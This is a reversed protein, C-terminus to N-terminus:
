LFYEPVKLVDQYLLFKTKQDERRTSKSTIETVFCPGKGEVWVLYYDRQGKDLDKTTFVDPSVHKRKNGEEYYMLLNGSVYVQQDAYFDELTQISDVMCERHRDTEAMPKGDSTPYQITRTVQGTAM